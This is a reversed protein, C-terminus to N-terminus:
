LPRDHRPDRTSGYKIELTIICATALIATSSCIVMCIDGASM